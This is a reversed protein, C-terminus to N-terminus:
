LAKEIIGWEEGLASFQLREPGHLQLDAENHVFIFISGTYIVAALVCVNLEHPHKKRRRPLQFIPRFCEYM